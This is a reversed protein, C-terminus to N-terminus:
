KELYEPVKAIARSSGRVNRINIMRGAVTENYSLSDLDILKETAAKIRNAALGILSMKKRIVDPLGNNRKLLIEINATITMLPNNIEHCLTAATEAVLQLNEKEDAASEPQKRSFTLSKNESLRARARFRSSNESMGIFIVPISKDNARDIIDKIDHPSLNFDSDIFVHSCIRNELYDEIIKLNSILRLDIKRDLEIPLASTVAEFTKDTLILIENSIHM